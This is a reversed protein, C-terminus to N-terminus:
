VSAMQTLRFGVAEGIHPRRVEAEGESFSSMMADDSSSRSLETLSAMPPRWVAALERAGARSRGASTAGRRPRCDRPPEEDTKPNTDEVEM